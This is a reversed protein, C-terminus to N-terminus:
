GNMLSVLAPDNLDWSPGAGSGTHAIKPTDADTTITANDQLTCFDWGASQLILLVQEM